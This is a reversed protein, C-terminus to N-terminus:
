EDMIKKAERALKNRAMKKKAEIVIIYVDKKDVETKGCHIYMMDWWELASNFFRNFPYEEMKDWAVSDIDFNQKTIFHIFKGDIKKVRFLDRLVNMAWEPFNDAVIDCCAFYLGHEEPIRDKKAELILQIKELLIDAFEQLSMKGKQFYWKIAKIILERLKVKKKVSIKM